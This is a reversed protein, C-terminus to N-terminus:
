QKEELHKIELFCQKTRNNDLRGNVRIFPCRGWGLSSKIIMMKHEFYGDPRGRRIYQMFTAMVVISIFVVVLSISLMVNTKGILLGIIVAMPVIGLTSIGAIWVLETASSGRFVAVEENVHSALVDRLDDSM